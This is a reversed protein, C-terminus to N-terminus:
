SLGQLDWGSLCVCVSVCVWVCACSFLNSLYLYPSLVHASSSGQLICSSLYMGNFCSFAPDDLVWQSGNFHATTNTTGTLSMQDPPCRYNVVDGEWYNDPIPGEVEAGPPNPPVETIVPFLVTCSISVAQSKKLILTNTHRFTSIAQEQWSCYKFVHLWLYTYVLNEICYKM